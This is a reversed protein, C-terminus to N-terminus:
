TNTLGISSGAPLSAPLLIAADQQNYEAFTNGEKYFFSESMVIRFLILETSLRVSLKIYM